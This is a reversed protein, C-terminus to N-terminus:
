NPVDNNIKIVWWWLFHSRKLIFNNAQKANCKYTDIDMFTAFLYASPKNNQTTHAHMNIFMTTKEELQILNSLSHNAQLIKIHHSFTRFAPNLSQFFMWQPPWVDVLCTLYKLSSSTYTHTYIYIKTPKRYVCILHISL